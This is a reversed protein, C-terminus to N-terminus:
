VERRFSFRYTVGLTAGPDLIVVGTGPHGEAALRFGDNAMTVPEVCVWGAQESYVVVHTIPGSWSLTVDGISVGAATLGTYARDMPPPRRRVRLDVDATVAVPPGEPLPGAGPWYRDAPVAVPAAAFWPHIGLGVPARWPARNTVSLAQDLGNPSLTFRQRGTVVFRDVALDVALTLSRDGAGEVRWPTTAALGHIASGDDHNVPVRFTEGEFTFRGGPVRNSWPLLPYSGWATWGLHAHEPGRLLPRGDVTVQGIRGGAGPYVDVGVAGAALHHVPGVAAPNAM